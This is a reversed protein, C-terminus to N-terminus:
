IQTYHWKAAAVCRFGAKLLYALSEAEHGPPQVTGM